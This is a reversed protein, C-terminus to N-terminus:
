ATLNELTPPLVNIVTRIGQAEYASLTLMTPWVIVGSGPDM